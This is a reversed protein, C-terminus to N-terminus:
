TLHGLGLTYLLYLCSLFWLSLWPQYPLSLCPLWELRGGQAGIGERLFGPIWM